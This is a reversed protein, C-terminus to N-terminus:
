SDLRSYDVPLYTAFPVRFVVVDAVSLSLVGHQCLLGNQCLLLPLVVGRQTFLRQAEQLLPPVTFARQLSKSALIITIDILM